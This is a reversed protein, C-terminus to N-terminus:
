SAAGPSSFISAVTRAILAAAIILTIWRFSAENRLRHLPHFVALQIKDQCAILCTAM